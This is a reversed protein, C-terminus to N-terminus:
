GLIMVVKVYGIQNVLLANMVFTTVYKSDKLKIVNFRFEFKWCIDCIYTHGEQIADRFYFFLVRTVRESVCTVLEFRHTVLEFGCTVLDFGRTVLEFGRPVLKFGCTLLSFGRSTPNFACTPLNFVRTLLNFARHSVRFFDTLCYVYSNFLFFGLEM